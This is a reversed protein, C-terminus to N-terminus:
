TPIMLVLVFMITVSVLLLNLGYGIIGRILKGIKPIFLFFAIAVIIGLIDM